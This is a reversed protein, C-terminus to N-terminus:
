VDAWPSKLTLFVIASKILLLYSVFNHASLIYIVTPAAADRVIDKFANATGPSSNITKVGNKGSYRVKISLAPPFSTATGDLSSSKWISIAFNVSAIVGFVLATTKLEGLLGEPTTIDMSFTM